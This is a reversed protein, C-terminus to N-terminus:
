LKQSSRYLNFVNGHFCVKLHLIYPPISTQPVCLSFLGIQSNRCPFKITTQCSCLGRRAFCKSGAGRPPSLVAIVSFSSCLSTSFFCSYILLFALQSWFVQSPSNPNTLARRVSERRGEEGATHANRLKYGGVRGRRKHEWM